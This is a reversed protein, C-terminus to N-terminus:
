GPGSGISDEDADSGCDAPQQMGLNLTRMPQRTGRSSSPPAISQSINTPHRQGSADADRRSAANAPQQFAASGPSQIRTGIGRSMMGGRNPPPSSAAQSQQKAPSKEVTRAVHVEWEGEAVIIKTVPGSTGGPMQFRPSALPSAVSAPTDYRSHSSRYSTPSSRSSVHMPLSGTAAVRESMLASLDMALNSLEVPKQAASCHTLISPEEPKDTATSCPSPACSVFQASPWDSSQDCLQVAGRGTAPRPSAKENLPLPLSVPPLTAAAEINAFPQVLEGPDDSAEHCVSAGM